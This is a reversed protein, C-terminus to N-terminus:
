GPRILDATAAADEEPCVRATPPRSRRVQAAVTGATTAFPLDELADCGSSLDVCSGDVFSVDHLIGDVDVGWAGTLLGDAIQPTAGHAPRAMAAVLLLCAIAM